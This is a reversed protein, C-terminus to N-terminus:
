VDSTRRGVNIVVVEPAEGEALEYHWAVDVDLLAMAYRREPDPTQYQPRPDQALLQTILTQLDQQLRDSHQQCNRMAEPSFSVNLQKPPEPALTNSAHLIADAYPIYPKIDLVPTGDLLDHDSIQLSVRGQHTTISDLKVVSLGLRNPRNPSRTAFVGVTRNGGLRPPRIRPRFPAPKFKHFIFEVWVHSSQELGTFANPDAFPPYLEITARAAPALGSQRPIGFKETYCSHVVGIAEFNYTM